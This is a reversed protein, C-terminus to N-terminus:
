WVTIRAAITGAKMCKKPTNMCTWKSALREPSRPRVASSSGSGTPDDALAPLRDHRKRDQEDHQEGAERGIERGEPADGAANQDSRGPGARM